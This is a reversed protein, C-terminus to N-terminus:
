NLVFWSVSATAALTTNLYITFSGTHPVVARVWRGSASTALVAFVMSSTTVGALTVSKSSTGAAMSTKGSRSLKVKGVAQLAVGASGATAYVGVGNSADSRGYVGHATGYGALGTDGSTAQAAYGTVGAAGPFGSAMSAFATDTVIFLGHAYGSGDAYLVTSSEADTQAGAVLANGDTAAVPEVEALVGTLAAAAAAGSVVAARRLWTRRSIPAADSEAQAAPEVSGSAGLAAALRENDADLRPVTGTPDPSQKRQQALASDTRTIRGEAGM